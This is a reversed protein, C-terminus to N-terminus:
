FAGEILHRIIYVTLFGSIMFTLTALISRMSLRSIGCVGHGSTCGSGLGTGYGVLLGASIMVIKSDSVVQEINQGTILKVLIPSIIIGFIFAARWDLGRAEAWPPLLRGLIGSVGAISGQFLMLLVASLGILAGGIFSAFPTFETM